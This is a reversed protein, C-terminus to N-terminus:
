GKTRSAVSAAAREITDAVADPQTMFVAHSASVETIDAGLDRRADAGGCANVRGGLPDM